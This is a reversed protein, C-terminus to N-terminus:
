AHDASPETPPGPRLGAAHEILDAMAPSVLVLNGNRVDRRSGALSDTVRWELHPALQQLTLFGNM